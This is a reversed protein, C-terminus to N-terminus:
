YFEHYIKSFIHNGKTWIFYPWGDSERELENNKRTPLDFISDLMVWQKKSIYNDIKFERWVSYLSAFSSLQNGLRGPNFTTAVSHRHHYEL